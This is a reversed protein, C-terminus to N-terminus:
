YDHAIQKTRKSLSELNVDSHQTKDKYRQMLKRAFEASPQTGKELFINLFLFFVSEKIEVAKKVHEIVEGMRQYKNQGTSRDTITSRERETIVNMELLKDAFDSYDDSFHDKIETTSDVLVQYAINTELIDPLNQLEDDHQRKRTKYLWSLYEVALSQPKNNSTCRFVYRNQTKLWSAVAAHRGKGCPCYFARKPKECTSLKHKSMAVDVAEEVADRAPIYDDTAECYVTICDLQEVLIIDTQLLDPCRLTFYNSFNSEEEAVNWSSDKHSLLHVIIACFLGMPIASEFYLLLPTTNPYPNINSVDKIPLLAPM